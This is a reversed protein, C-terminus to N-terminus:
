AGHERERRDDADSERICEGEHDSRRRVAPVLEVVVEGSGGEPEFVADAIDAGSVVLADVDIRRVALDWEREEHAHYAVFVGGRKCLEASREHATPTKASARRNPRLGASASKPASRKRASGMTRSWDVVVFFSVM